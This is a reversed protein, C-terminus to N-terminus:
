GKLWSLSTINRYRQRLLPRRAGLLGLLMGVPRSLIQVPELRIQRRLRVEQIIVARDPLQVVGLPIRSAALILLGLLLEAAQELIVMPNM